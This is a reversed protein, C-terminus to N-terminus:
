ELLGLEKLRPLTTIFGIVVAAVVGIQFKGMKTTGIFLRSFLFSMLVHSTAAGVAGPLASILLQDLNLIPHFYLDFLFWYAGCGFFLSVWLLQVKSQAATLQIAKRIQPLRSQKVPMPLTPKVRTLWEGCHKCKVAEDQISEACFPCAKM